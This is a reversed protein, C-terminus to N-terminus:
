PRYRRRDAVSIAVSRRQAAVATIATPIGDAVPPLDRRYADIAAVNAKWLESVRRRHASIGLVTYVAFGALLSFGTNTFAVICHDAVLHPSGSERWSAFASMVGFGVGTSYFIQAAAESWMVPNSLM